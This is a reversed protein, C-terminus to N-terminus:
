FRFVSGTRERLSCTNDFTRQYRIYDGDWWGNATVTVPRYLRSCGFWPTFARVEEVDGRARSLQNCASWAYPHTSSQVPSCVLYVQRGYPSSSYGDNITLVLSRGGTSYIPPEPWPGDLDDALIYRASPDGDAPTAANATTAPAAALAAGLLVAPGMAALRILSRM